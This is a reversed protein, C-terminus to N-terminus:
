DSEEIDRMGLNRAAHFVRIIIVRKGDFRYIIRHSKFPIELIEPDGLEEVASGLFPFLSLDNVSEKLNRVYKM